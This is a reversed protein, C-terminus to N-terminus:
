FDMMEEQLSLNQDKKQVQNKQEEKLKNADEDVGKNSSFFNTIM